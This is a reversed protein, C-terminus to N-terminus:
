TVVTYEDAGTLSGGDFTERENVYREAERERGRKGERKSERVGGRPSQRPSM